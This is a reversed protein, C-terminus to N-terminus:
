SRQFFARVAAQAEESHLREAFLAVEDEIRQAVAGADGKLLLKSIKMAEPPLDALKVAAKMTEAELSESPVVANLLGAMFAKEASFKGGAVLLEFALAHGIIRPGLLSSGAEPVLGLATFPTQFWSGTSAYVIDCHMLLTTGVGVALGDVGAILPKELGAVLKLFQTINSSDTMISGSRMFDALDNGATFVGGSGFLVHVRITADAEAAILAASIATYMEGTIANKKKPRNFRISQVAGDRVVQIFESM